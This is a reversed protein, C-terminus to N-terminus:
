SVEGAWWLSVQCIRNHMTQTEYLLFFIKGLQNFELKQGVVKNRTTVTIPGFKFGVTNTTHNRAQLIANVPPKIQTPRNRSEQLCVLLAGYRKQGGYAGALL